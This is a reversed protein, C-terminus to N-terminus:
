GGLDREPPPAHPCEPTSGWRGSCYRLRVGEECFFRRPQGLGGCARCQHQALGHWPACPDQPAAAPAPAVAVVPPQAAAPPDPTPETAVPEPM